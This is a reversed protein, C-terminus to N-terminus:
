VTFLSLLVYPARLLFRHRTSQLLEQSLEQFLHVGQEPLVPLSQVQGGKRLRKDTIADM